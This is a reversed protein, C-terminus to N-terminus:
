QSRISLLKMGRLSCELLQHSSHQLDPLHLSIALMKFQTPIMSMAWNQERYFPPTQKIQILLVWGLLRAALNHFLSTKTKLQTAHQSHSDRILLLNFKVHKPSSRGIKDVSTVVSDFDFIIQPNDIEPLHTQVVDLGALGTGNAVNVWIVDPAIWNALLEAPTQLCYTKAHHNVMMKAYDPEM